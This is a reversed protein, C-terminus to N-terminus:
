QTGTEGSVQPRIVHGSLSVLGLASISSLKYRLIAVYMGIWVKKLAGLNVQCDELQRESDKRGLGRRGDSGPFGRTRGDQPRQLDSRAHQAHRSHSRTALCGFEYASTSNSWIQSAFLPM